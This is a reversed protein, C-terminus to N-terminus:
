RVSVMIHAVGGSFTAVTVIRCLSVYSEFVFICQLVMTTVFCFNGVTMIIADGEDCRCCNLRDAGKECTM